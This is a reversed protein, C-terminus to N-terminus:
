ADIVPDQKDKPSIDIRHEGSSEPFYWLEGIEKHYETKGDSLDVEFGKPYQVAEPVYIVTPAGGAKGTFTATYSRDFMSFSQYGPDGNLLRVYPRVNAELGRPKGQSDIISFDEENWADVDKVSYDWYAASIYDEEIVSHADNVAGNRDEKKWTDGFEGIFLPMGLERAKEKHKVLLDSLIFDEIPLNFRYSTSVPDYLHPAYVLRDTDFSTLNSFYSDYMNPEVFGIADPHIERMAYIIEQYFPKLYDNEFHGALDMLNGIDGNSPENMIDYGLVCPNDKVRKAVELWANKYHERLEKSEFFNTFCRRVEDSKAYATGWEGADYGKLAENKKPDVDPPLAWYPAGDGCVDGRLWRSYLDQHMDLLVYIGRKSAQEVMKGVRDLYIQDYVGPEPEIAEWYLTLRVINFGWSVLLDWWKPEEFPIFPPFKANAAANIGRFIVLRGQSDHFGDPGLILRPDGADQKAVNGDGIDDLMGLDIM